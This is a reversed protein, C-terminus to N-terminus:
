SRIFACCKNPEELQDGFQLKLVAAKTWESPDDGVRFNLGRDFTWSVAQADSARSIFDIQARLPDLAVSLRRRAPATRRAILQTLVLLSIDGPRSASSNKGQELFSQVPSCYFDNSLLGREIRLEHLIEESAVVASIVQDRIAFLAITTPSPFREAGLPQRVKGPSM